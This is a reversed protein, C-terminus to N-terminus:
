AAPTLARLAGVAIWVFRFHMADVNLSNVAIGILGAAFPIALARARGGATLIRRVRTWIAVCLAALGITGIAGTEGLRGFWTSHPDDDGHGAPIRGEAEARRTARHLSGPGGGAVPHATFADWAVRKLLGYAMLDYTMEVSVRSAGAPDHLAHTYSPAGISADRSEVVRLDRVAFVLLLNVAVILLVSAATMTAIMARRGSTLGAELLGRRSAKEEARAPRSGCSPVKRPAAWVAALEYTLAAVLGVIGHAIAGCAAAVMAALAVLWGVVQQRSAADWWLAFVFPAAFILFNVLYEPSPFTGYLRYFEGVYPVPLASGVRPMTIGAGYFLALATLCLAAVVVGTWAVVRGVRLVVDARAATMAVVFYLAAMYVDKAFQVSSARLDPAQLFSPVASLLYLGVCVDLTTARLRPRSAIAAILLLPFVLDAWQLNFPLPSWQIPLLCVYGLLLGESWRQAPTLGALAGDVAAQQVTV